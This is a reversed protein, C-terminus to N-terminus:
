IIMLAEMSAKTIILYQVDRYTTCAYVIGNRVIRTFNLPVDSFATMSEAIEALQLMLLVWDQTTTSMRNFDADTSPVNMYDPFKDAITYINDRNEISGCALVAVSNFMMSFINLNATIHSQSYGYFAKAAVSVANVYSVIPSYVGTELQLNPVSYQTWLPALIFETTKFVDPLYNTWTVTDQSSHALIYEKIANKIVDPNNGAAGYIILTWPVAFTNTPEAQDIWFYNITNVLTYPNSGAAERIMAMTTALTRADVRAKVDVYTGILLDVSTTPPIVIIEYEDYQSRFAADSLWIRIQASETGTFTWELWDPLWYTGSQSMTGATLNTVVGDYQTLMAQLFDAQTSTVTGAKSETWLWNMLTLVHTTIESTVTAAINDRKSSFSILQYDRFAATNYRGVDKTFTEAYTSLEGHPATVNLTNNALEDITVFGKLNFM